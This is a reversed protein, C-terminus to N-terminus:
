SLLEFPYELRKCPKGVRISTGFMERKGTSLNDLVRVQHGAKLLAEALNSGIFGAGGTVLAKSM